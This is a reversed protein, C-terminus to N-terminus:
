RKRGAQEEASDWVDSQAPPFVKSQYYDKLTTLEMLIGLSFGKRNGRTDTLLEEFHRNMVLPAKWMGAMRNVIRPFTAALEKPRASEEISAMLAQAAANLALDEKKPASRRKSYDVGAAPPKNGSETAM